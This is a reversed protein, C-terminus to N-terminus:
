QKAEMRGLQNFYRALASIEDEGLSKAVNAMVANAREGSQYSRMAQQFYEEPLGEIPPILGAGFQPKHCTTCEAALYEGYALVDDASSSAAGCCTMTLTAATVRILFGTPSM